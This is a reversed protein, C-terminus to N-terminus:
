QLGGVVLCPDLASILTRAIPGLLAGQLLSVPDFDDDLAHVILGNRINSNLQLVVRLENQPCLRTSVTHHPKTPQVLPRIAEAEPFQVSVSPLHGAFLPKGQSPTALFLLGRPGGCRVSGRRLSEGMAYDLAFAYPLETITVTKKGLGDPIMRAIM